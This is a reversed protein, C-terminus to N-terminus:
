PLLLAQNPLGDGGAKRHKADTQPRLQKRLRDPRANIRSVLQLDPPVRDPQIVPKELSVRKKELDIWGLWLRDKM